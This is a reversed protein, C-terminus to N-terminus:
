SKSFVDKYSKLLNKLKLVINEPVSPHVDNLMKKVFDLIHDELNSNSEDALRRKAIEDPVKFPGIETVVHAQTVEYL